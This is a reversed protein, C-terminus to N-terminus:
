AFLAGQETEPEVDFLTPEPSAARTGIWQARWTNATAAREAARQNDVAEVLDGFALAAATLPSAPPQDLWAEATATAEARDRAEAKVCPRCTRRAKGTNNDGAPRGCYLDQTGPRRYHGTSNTTRAGQTAYTDM